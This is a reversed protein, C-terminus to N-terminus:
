DMSNESHGLSDRDTKKMNAIGLIGAAALKVALYSSNERTRMAGNDDLYSELAGLATNVYRCVIPVSEAPLKKIYFWLRGGEKVAGGDETLGFFKRQLSASFRGFAAIQGACDAAVEDLAHNKMGGLVRLTFYHFCEHHLRIVASKETWEDEAMGANEGSLASYGAKNLLIVRHGYMGSFKVPITFANVSAPLSFTDTDMTLIACLREFLIRESAYVVPIGGAATKEIWCRVKDSKLIEEVAEPFCSRGQLWEEWEKVFDDDKLPFKPTETVDYRHGLYQLAAENASYETMQTKETM